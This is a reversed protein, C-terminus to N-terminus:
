RDMRWTGLVFADELPMLPLSKFLLKVAVSKAGAPMPFRLVRVEDPLLRNDRRSERKHSRRLVTQIPEHSDFCVHVHFSRSPIEGPFKHGCRNRLEILVVGSEFWIRHGLARKVFTATAGM